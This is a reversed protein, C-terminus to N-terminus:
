SKRRSLASWAPTTNCIDALIAPHLYSLGRLLRRGDTPHDIRCNCAPGDVAVAYLIRLNPWTTGMWAPITGVINANNLAFSTLSSGLNVLSPPITVALPPASNVFFASTFLWAIISV